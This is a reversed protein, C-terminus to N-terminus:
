LATSFPLVFPCPNCACQLRAGAATIVIRFLYPVTHVFRLAGQCQVMHYTYSGSGDSRCFSSKCQM